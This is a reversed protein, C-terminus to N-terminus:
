EPDGLGVMRRQKQSLRNPAVKRYHAETDDANPAPVGKVGGIINGVERLMASATATGGVRGAMGVFAAIKDFAEIKEADRDRRVPMSEGGIDIKAPYVDAALESLAAAVDRLARMNAYTREDTSPALGANDYEISVRDLATRFNKESM